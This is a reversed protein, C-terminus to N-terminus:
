GRQSRKSLQIVGLLVASSIGLTYGLTAHLQKPDISNFVYFLILGCVPPIWIYKIVPYKSYIKEKQITLPLNPDPLNTLIENLRELTPLTLGSSSLSFIMNIMADNFSSITQLKGGQTYEEKILPLLKSILNRSINNPLKSIIEPATPAWKGVHESLRTISKTSSNFSEDTKSYSFIKLQKYLDYFTFFLYDNNKMVYKNSRTSIIVAVIAFVGPVILSYVSAIKLTSTIYTMVFFTIVAFFILTSTRKHLKLGKNHVSLLSQYKTELAEPTMSM